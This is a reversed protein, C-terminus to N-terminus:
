FFCRQKVQLTQHMKQHEGDINSKTYWCSYWFGGKQTVFISTQHAQLYSILTPCYLRFETICYQMFYLLIQDKNRASWMFLLLFHSDILAGPVIYLQSSPRRWQLQQESNFLYRYNKSYQFCFALCTQSDRAVSLVVGELRRILWDPIMVLKRRQYYGEM